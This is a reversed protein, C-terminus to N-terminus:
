EKSNFLLKCYNICVSPLMKLLHIKLVHCYCYKMLAEIGFDTLFSVTLLLWAIVKTKKEATQDQILLRIVIAPHNTQNQNWSETSFWELYFFSYIILSYLYYIKLSPLSHSLHFTILTVRAHSLSFIQTGSLFWGMGECLVHRASVWIGVSTDYQNLWREFLYINEM